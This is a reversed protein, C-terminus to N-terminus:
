STEIVEPTDIDCVSELLKSDRGIPSTWRSTTSLNTRGDKVSLSHSMSGCRGNQQHLSMITSAKAQGDDTALQEKHFKDAEEVKAQHATTLHFDYDAKLGLM